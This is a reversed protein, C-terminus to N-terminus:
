YIFIIGKQLKALSLVVMYISKCFSQQLRQPAELERLGNRRTAELIAINNHKESLCKLAVEELMNNQKQYFHMTGPTYGVEFLNLFNLGTEM